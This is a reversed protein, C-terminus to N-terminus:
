FMYKYKKKQFEDFSNGKGGKGFSDTSFILTIEQSGSTFHSLASTVIDYSYCVEFTEHITLGLDLAIADNMRYSAGVYFKDKVHVRLSYALYIPAGATQAAFVSSQWVYDPNGSFNYGLYGYFHPELEVVGSKSLDPVYTKFLNEDMSFLNDCSLGFQFRDNYLYAGASAEPAWAHAVVTQDIAPDNLQYETIKPGNAFYEIMSGAVGLSLALDPFKLKYSYCLTYDNRQTPGTIDQYIYAGVGMKGGGFPLRYNLSLGETIPADPFGLWPARFDVRADYTRKTGAIAPNFFLLDSPFQTFIPLQQAYADICCNVAFVFFLYKLCKKKM